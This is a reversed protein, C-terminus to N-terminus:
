IENGTTVSLLLLLTQMDLISSCDTLLQEQRWPWWWCCQEVTMLGAFYQGRLGGSQHKVLYATLIWRILVCYVIIDIKDRHPADQQTIYVYSDRLCIGAIAVLLEKNINNYRETDCCTEAGIPWWWSALAKEVINLIFFIVYQITRGPIPSGNPACSWIKDKGKKLSLQKTTRGTPRGREAFDFDCQSRHDTPWNTKTGQGKQLLHGSTVNSHCNSEKNKMNPARESLLVPRYNATCHHLNLKLNCQSWHDTRTQWNTKTGPGCHPVYGSKLKKTQCNSRRRPTPSGWGYGGHVPRDLVFHFHVTLTVNTCPSITLTVM